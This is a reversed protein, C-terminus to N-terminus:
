SWSPSRILGPGPQIALVAGWMDTTGAEHTGGGKKWRISSIFDGRDEIWVNWKCIFGPIGDQGAEGGVKDALGKTEVPLTREAETQGLARGGDARSEGSGAGHGGCRVLRM